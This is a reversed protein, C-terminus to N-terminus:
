LGIVGGGVAIWRMRTSRDNGVLAAAELPEPSLVTIQREAIGVAKLENVARRAADPTAYLAYVAKM